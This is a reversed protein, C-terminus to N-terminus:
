SELTTPELVMFDVIENKVCCISNIGSTSLIFDRHSLTIKRGSWFPNFPRNPMARAGGKM